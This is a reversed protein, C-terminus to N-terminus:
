LKTNFLGVFVDSPSVGTFESKGTIKDLIQDMVVESPTYGNIVTPIRPVDILHYPNDVSILMTPVDHIIKPANLGRSSWTIRAHNDAGSTKISAFYLILDYKEKIESIKKRYIWTNEDNEDFLTVEFGLEILKKIFYMSHNGGADHYGGKDGLVSILIRKNKELSIPLLNQTDKVLTIAKNSIKEALEKGVSKQFIELEEKPPTLTGDQKKIHLNLKAKMGLVRSVAEDLRAQTLIGEKIGQIMYNFDEEMDNTFLFLDCGSAICTPVAKSRSMTETFGGMGSADSVILGNFGLKGRLLKNHLDANLSGPLIDEDKIDENFYRSYAPLMIHATMLTETGDDIMRQYISGYTADWEEVTSSNISAVFHQDREDKGDGPWHKMCSLMGADRLGKAMASANAYIREKDSGFTRINTIPSHFNYDIDIIPGFNWNCGVALGEKGCIYGAQYALEPDNAAALEMQTGYNTGETVISETGRELDGAILLPIDWHNQLKTIKDYTIIATGCGVMFGAPQIGLRDMQEIINEAELTFGLMLFLQGVKQELTMNNLTKNVWEIQEENLKYPKTRLDM